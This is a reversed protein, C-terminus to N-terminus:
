DTKKRNPKKLKKEPKRSKILKKIKKEGRIYILTFYILLILRRSFLEWFWCWEMGIIIFINAWMPQM